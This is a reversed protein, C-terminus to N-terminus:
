KRRHQGRRVQSRFARARALELRFTAPREAVDNASPGLGSERCCVDFEKSRAVKLIDVTTEVRNTIEEPEAPPAGDVSALYSQALPLASMLVRWMPGRPPGGEPPRSFAFHPQGCGEAVVRACYLVLAADMKHPRGQPSTALGADFAWTWLRKARKREAPSLGKWKADPDPKGNDLRLMRAAADDDFPFAAKLLSNALQTRDPKPIQLSAPPETLRTITQALVWHNRFHHYRKGCERLAGFLPRVNPDVDVIEFDPM